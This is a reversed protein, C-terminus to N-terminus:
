TRVRQLAGLFKNVQSRSQPFMLKEALWYAIPRPALAMATFWGFYLLKMTLSVDFRESAARIGLILLRGISDGSIPHNAPDLKLSIMRCAQLSVSLIHAGDKPAHALGLQQAFRAIYKHTQVGHTVLRRIRAMNLTSVEFNNGGHVRYYAGIPDLSVVPGFLPAIHTLYTDVGARYEQEPVPCIQHLVWAPFANGSTAMRTIDDPFTMYHRRLDGSLLQLHESPKITGTHQGNKDIVEMRYHVKAVEPQAQIIAAVRAAIDPILVDDADLFFIIDGHSHVFGANCASAQGGNAQMVPIIRTGYSQIVKDSTDTSGDDVVIVEIHAYTQGLASDIAAGLFQAYNYNNIIISVLPGQSM